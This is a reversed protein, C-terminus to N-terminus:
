VLIAGNYILKQHAAPHGKEQEIQQKVQALTADPDVSLDFTGGKLTRIRLRFSM